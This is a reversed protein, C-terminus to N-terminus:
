PAPDPRLTLLAPSRKALFANAAFSPLLGHRPFTKQDNQNDAKDCAPQGPLDHPTRAETEHGVDANSDNAGEDASPQQRFQTNMESPADDGRDDGGRDARHHKQQDKPQDIPAAAAPPSPSSAAEPVRTRRSIAGTELSCNWRDTRSDARPRSRVLWEAERLSPSM